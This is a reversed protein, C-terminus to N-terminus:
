LEGNVLPCGLLEFRMCVQKRVKFLPVLRIGDAVIPPRLITRHVPSDTNVEFYQFVFYNITAMFKQSLDVKLKRSGRWTCYYAIINIILHPQTLHSSYHLDLLIICVEAKLRPPYSRRSRCLQECSVFASNLLQKIKTENM